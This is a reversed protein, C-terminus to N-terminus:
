HRTSIPRVAPSAKHGDPGEVERLWSFTIYLNLELVVDGIADFDVVAYVSREEKYGDSLWWMSRGPSSVGGTEQSDSVAAVAGVTISSPVDM